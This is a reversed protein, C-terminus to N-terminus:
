PRARSLEAQAVANIQLGAYFAVIFALPFRGVWAWKRSIAKTFLMVVLLIALMRLGLWIGHKESMAVILKPHLNDPYQQVM